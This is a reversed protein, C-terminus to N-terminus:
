LILLLDSSAHPSCAYIDATVGRLEPNKEHRRAVAQGGAGEKDGQSAARAGAHREDRHCQPCEPADLILPVDEGAKRSIKRLVLVPSGATGNEQVPHPTRTSARRRSWGSSSVQERGSQHPLADM